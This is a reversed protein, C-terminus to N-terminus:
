ISREPWLLFFIALFMVIIAKSRTQQIHFAITQVNAELNIVNPVEQPLLLFVSHDVAICAVM